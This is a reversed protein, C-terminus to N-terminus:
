SKAAVSVSFSGRVHDTSAVGVAAHSVMLGKVPTREPVGDAAPLQSTVTVTVSGYEPNPEDVKVRLATVHPAFVAGAIM